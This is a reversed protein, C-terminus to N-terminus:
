TRSNSSDLAKVELKFLKNDYEQPQLFTVSDTHIRIVNAIDIMAFEAIENRCYANLWSKFRINYKYPKKPDYLYHYMIHDDEEREGYEATRAIKMHKYKELNVRLEKDSVFKQQRECMVGWMSSGLQKILKNKPFKVKLKQLIEYWKGFIESSKIISDYLYANPSGDQILQLKFKFQSKHKM